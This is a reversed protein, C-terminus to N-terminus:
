QKLDHISLNPIASCISFNNNYYYVQELRDTGVQIMTESRQLDYPAVNM